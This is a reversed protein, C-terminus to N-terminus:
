RGLLLDVPRREDLIISVELSAGVPLEDEKVKVTVPCVWDGPMSLWEAKVSVGAEQATVPEEIQIVEGTVTEDSGTPTFQVQMGPEISYGEEATVFCVTGAEQHIGVSSVTTPMSGFFCWAGAAALALILAALVVWVSPSSVKLYDDLQDPSSIRELSKKRFITDNM